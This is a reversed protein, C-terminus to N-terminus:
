VDVFETTFPEHPDELELVHNMTFGYAPGAEIDTPAIPFAMNSVVGTRKAYPSHLAYTRAVALIESALRQTKALIVILLGVEHPVKAREPELKGMVGDRGYVRFIVTYDKHGITGKFIEGVRESIGARVRDLYQDLEGLLEPDRMGGICLSRYGVRGAGELKVTYRSAPHFRSGHVAVATDTVQLYRCQTTDLTGSPEVLHYPSPNEYLTHAAASLPTCRRAPNPPEVEFHDMRIRAFLCDAAAPPDLSAGGCELLKAAHWAPGPSLGRMLPVASFLSTDTARGALVVDAGSEIASTIQEAGMAAVIHDSAEIDAATLPPAFDLPHIKNRDLKGLLYGKDQESQIVGLRFHLKEERAIQLVLDKFGEVHMKAGAGGCSGVIVPVKARCGARLMLALDRRCADLPVHFKSGGLDGPGPDTSGADCAIVDPKWELAVQLSDERIGYGLIGATALVRVEEM